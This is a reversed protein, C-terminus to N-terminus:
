YETRATGAVRNAPDDGIREAPRELLRDDDLVARTGVARQGREVNMM